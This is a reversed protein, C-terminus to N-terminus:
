IQMLFQGTGSRQLRKKNGFLTGDWGPHVLTTQKTPKKPNKPTKKKLKTICLISGLAKHLRPLHEVM